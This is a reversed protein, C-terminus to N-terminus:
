RASDPGRLARLIVGPHRLMRSGVVVADVTLAFWPRVYPRIRAIRGDSIEFVTVDSRTVPGIRAEGTVVVRDGDVIREHWRLGTLSGYVAALLVRLDDTGRFVMRGSLPSVLEPEPALTDLLADIDVAQAAALYREVVDTVGMSDPM